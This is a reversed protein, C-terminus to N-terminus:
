FWVCVISVPLPFACVRFRSRGPWLILRMWRPLVVAPAARAAGHRAAVCIGALGAPM